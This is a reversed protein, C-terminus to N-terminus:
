GPWGLRRLAAVARDKAAEPGPVDLRLAPEAAGALLAGAIEAALLPAAFSTGSWVAFGGSYDDPDLAERVAPGADAEPERAILQPSRSANIDVPFTSVVAAGPAWTSIWRADDSFMAKSGNPNLAGVSLLPLQGPPVPEETFAAPYFRRSTAYNGAAAVVAVGMALLEDLV